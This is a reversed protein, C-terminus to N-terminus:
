IMGFDWRDAHYIPNKVVDLPEGKCTHVADVIKDRSRAEQGQKNVKVQGQRAKILITKPQKTLFDVIYYFSFLLFLEM